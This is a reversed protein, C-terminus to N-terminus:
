IWLESVDGKFDRFNNVSNDFFSTFPGFEKVEKGINAYRFNWGKDFSYVGFLINTKEKEDADDTISFNNSMIHHSHLDAVLYVNPNDWLCYQYQNTIHICSKDKLDPEAVYYVKGICDYYVLLRAETKELIYKDRFYYEIFEFPITEDNYIIETGKKSLTNQLFCYQQNNYDTIVIDVEPRNLEVFVTKAIEKIMEKTAGGNKVYDENNGFALDLNLPTQNPGSVFILSGKYREEKKKEKKPEEKTSEEKAEAVPEVDLELELQEKEM